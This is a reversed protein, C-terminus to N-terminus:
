LGDEPHGLHNAVEALVTCYFPVNLTAGTAQWAAIGQRVQAIGEEGQGQM